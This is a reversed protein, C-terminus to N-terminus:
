TIFVQATTAFHMPTILKSVIVAYAANQNKPINAQNTFINFINCFEEDNLSSFPFIEDTCTNCFWDTDNEKFKKFEKLSRIQCCKVHFNHKCLDCKIQCNKPLNKTCSHCFVEALIQNTPM